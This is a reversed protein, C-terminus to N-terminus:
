PPRRRRLIAAFFGDTDHLDPRTRLRTGDGLETARRKGLIEKASVEQFESHTTLFHDILRDNEEPLISCTAYVLRGGEPVLTTAHDLIRKQEERLRHLSARDLSWRIEPKRRLVGTGSCPADVLVRDKPMTAIWEPWCADDVIEARVNSFRARRARRKLEEIRARAIDTAVVRGRGRLLSALHLSKGGAGACVDLVTGGPPTAVLEAVLQSAEDQIEFAGERFSKSLLLDRDGLVRLGDPAITSPITQFGEAVLARALEERSGLLRNARIAVPPKASLAAALARASREGLEDVLKQALWPPLSGLREVAVNAPLAEAAHAVEARVDTTAVVRVLEPISPTPGLARELRVCERALEAIRARVRQAPRHERFTATLAASLDHLARARDLTEIM